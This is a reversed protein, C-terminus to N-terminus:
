RGFPKCVYRELAADLRAGARLSLRHRRAFAQLLESAKQYRLLTAPQAARRRLYTVDAALDLM